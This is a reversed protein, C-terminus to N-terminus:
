EIKNQRELELLLRYKQKQKNIIRFSMQRGQSGIYKQHRIVRHIFGQESFFENIADTAARENNIIKNFEARNGNYFSLIHEATFKAGANAARMNECLKLMFNYKAAQAANSMNPRALSPIKDIKTQKTVSFTNSNKDKSLSEMVVEEEGLVCPGFFHLQIMYRIKKLDEELKQQYLESRMFNAYELEGQKKVDLEERLDRDITNFVDLEFATSYKKKEKEFETEPQKPKPVAASGHTVAPRNLMPDALKATRLNEERQRAYSESIHDKWFNKLQEQEGRQKNIYIGNKEFYARRLFDTLGKIHMPPRNPHATSDEIKSTNGFRGSNEIGKGTKEPIVTM